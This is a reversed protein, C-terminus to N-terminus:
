DIYLFENLSMLVQCFDTLATQDADPTNAAHYATTQQKLFDLADALEPATPPRNLAILYAARVAQPFPTEPQPAARHALGRAYDHIIPNNM